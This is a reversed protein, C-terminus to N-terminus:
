EAATFYGYLSAYTSQPEGGDIAVNYYVDFGMGGAYKAVIEASSNITITILGNEDVESVVSSALISEEFYQDATENDAWFVVVDEVNAQVLDTSALQMEIVSTYSGDENAEHSVLDFEVAKTNVGDVVIASSNAATLLADYSWRM